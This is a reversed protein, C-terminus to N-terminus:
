QIVFLFLFLASFLIPQHIIYFFLSNRGLYCIYNWPRYRLIGANFKGGFGGSPRCIFRASVMGAFFVGLWPFIPQYDVSYHPHITRVLFDYTSPINMPPDLYFYLILLSVTLKGLMLTSLRVASLAILSCALICHLIGFKIWFPGFIVYTVLSILLSLTGLVLIRKKVYGWRIGRGHCLDFGVGAVFIFTGAITQQFLIWGPRYITDAAILGFYALDFTFHFVIMALIAIGRLLDLNGFRSTQHAKSKIIKFM